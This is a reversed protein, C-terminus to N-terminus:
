LPHPHHPNLAACAAIAPPCRLGLVAAARVQALPSAAAAAPPWAPVAASAAAGELGRMLADLLAAMGEREAPVYVFLDAALASV